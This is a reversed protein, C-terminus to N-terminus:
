LNLNNTIEGALGGLIVPPIQGHYLWLAFLDTFAVVTTQVSM